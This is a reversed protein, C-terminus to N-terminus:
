VEEGILYGKAIDTVKVRVMEGLRRRTKLVVAKYTGTRGEKFGSHGVKDLFVDGEWGLWGRNVEANVRWWLEDMLRSRDKTIRSPFQNRMAAAETGPRPWFRSINLMDPRLWEVFDLSERFQAETEGPFGCIIDTAVGVSPLEERFRTILEKFQGITYKRRMAALVSDSGSQVPAHVFRYVKPNKFASVLDDFIPLASNPTMMGVRVMFKGEIAALREILEPLRVGDADYAATDEATVWIERCGSAVAAEADEIIGEVPFSFLKGRAV